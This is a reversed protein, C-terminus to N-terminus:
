LRKDGFLNERLVRLTSKAEDWDFYGGELHRSGSGSTLKFASRGHMVRGNSFTMIEGPEMRHTFVNEPRYMVSNFVKIAKYLKKVQDVPLSLETSRCHDSYNICMFNGHRDYQIMPRRSKLHYRLHDDGADRFDIQTSRLIQYEEPYDRKLQEAINVGDVFQNEGGEGAQEICHLMQIGPIYEYFLQDIHLGLSKPTFAVSSADLKSFVQFTDGYVTTRLYAVRKALQGVAGVKLPAGQVMAMGKSGLICLWNYLETDSTVIKNFDFKEVATDMEAGWIALKQGDVFDKETESFRQRNLWEALFDSRHGGPWIIRFGAGGDTIDDSQPIIEPDLDAIHSTRQWASPQYCASCRCNDKLWVYPYQGIYGNDFSLKYWGENDQRERLILKTDDTTNENPAM